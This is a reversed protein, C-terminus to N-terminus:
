KLGLIKRAEDPTAIERGLDKSIRVIREVLKLNTALEKQPYTLTVTVGFENEIESALSHIASMIDDLGYKPLVRCDFYGIDVGPITNINDVNSEKKTPEFTSIPPYFIPDNHNFSDYLTNMRVIFFAAAKHANIGKEPTSGHTQKGKIEWKIWLISKEAIEILIGDPDGADPIIILDENKFLDPRNKLVHQIGYKSGTEEDSVIVLGVDYLPLINEENLAKLALFSSVFGQQNDETGRGYLKGNKEIVKFPDSNWAKLDGPPVIDMHSMIWITHDSSKGNVKMIINPRYGSPVRNDPADIRLLTDAHTKNLLQQIYEAKKAEGEGGNEPGIAPIATLETQIRVVDKRYNLIQNNIRSFLHKDM